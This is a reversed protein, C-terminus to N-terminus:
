DNCLMLVLAFNHVIVLSRIFSSMPMQDQRLKMLQETESYSLHSLSTQCANLKAACTSGMKVTIWHKSLCILLIRYEIYSTNNLNHTRVKQIMIIGFLLFFCQFIYPAELIGSVDTTYKCGLVSKLSHTNFGEGFDPFCRQSTKKKVKRLDAM